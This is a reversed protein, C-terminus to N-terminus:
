RDPTLTQARVRGAEGALNGSLTNLMQQEDANLGGALLTFRGLEVLALSQLFATSLRDIRGISAEYRGIRALLVALDSEVQDSVPALEDAASEAPAVFRLADGPEGLQLLEDALTVYLRAEESRNPLEDAATLALDLRAARVFIRALRQLIQVRTFDDDVDGIIFLALEANNLAQAEHGATLLREAVESIVEVFQADTGESAVLNIASDLMRQGDNDRGAAAYRSALEGLGRSRIAPFEITALVREAQEFREIAAFDDVIRLLEAADAPSQTLAELGLVELLTREVFLESQAENGSVAFRRSIQSYASAKQWPDGIASAAAIAQQVLTNVQQGLGSEQYQRAVDILLAVRSPLNQVIYIENLAEVLVDFLQEGATFAANVVEQLVIARVADDDVDRVLSLAERLLERARDLRDLAEYQVAIQVLIEARASGVEERRAIRVAGDLVQASQLFLGADTYADAIRTYLYVQTFVDEVRGAAMLAVALASDPDGDVTIDEPAPEPSSACQLLVVILLVFVLAHRLRNM